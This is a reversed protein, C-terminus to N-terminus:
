RAAGAHDENQGDEKTPKLTMAIGCFIREVRQARQALLCCLRGTEERWQREVPDIPVVGGGVEVAMVVDKQALEAALSELDQCHAALDQVDWVARRALTADDWGMRQKIYSKKGSFLPGTVFIM